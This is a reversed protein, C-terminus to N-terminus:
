CHREYFIVTIKPEKPIKASVGGRQCCLGVESMSHRLVVAVDISITTLLLDDLRGINFLAKQLIRLWSIPALLAICYIETSDDSSSTPQLHQPQPRPHLTSDFFHVLLHGAGFISPM